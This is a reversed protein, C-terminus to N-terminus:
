YIDFKFDSKKLYKNLKTKIFFFLNVQYNEFVKLVDIYRVFSITFRLTSVCKKNVVLKNMNYKTSSM